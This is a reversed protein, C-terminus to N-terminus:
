VLERYLGAPVAGDDLGRGKFNFYVHQTMNIPTDKDPVAEYDVRWVNKADARTETSSGKMMKKM